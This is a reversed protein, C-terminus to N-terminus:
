GGMGLASRHRGSCLESGHVGHHLAEPNLHFDVARIEGEFIAILVNRAPREFRLLPLRYDRYVEFGSPNHEVLYNAADGDALFWRSGIVHLTEPLDINIKAFARQLPKSRRSQKLDNEFIADIRGEYQSAKTKNYSRV